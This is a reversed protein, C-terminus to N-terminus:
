FSSLFFKTKLFFNQLLVRRQCRVRKLNNDIKFFKGDVVFRSTNSFAKNSKSIEMAGDDYKKSSFRHNDDKNAFEESKRNRSQDNDRIQDSNNTHLQELIRKASKEAVKELATTLEQKISQVLIQYAMDQTSLDSRRGNQSMMFNVSGRYFGNRGEIVDRSNEMNSAYRPRKEDPIWDGSQEIEDSEVDYGEM